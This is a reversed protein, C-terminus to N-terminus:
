FIRFVGSTEEAEKESTQEPIRSFAKTGELWPVFAPSAAGLEGRRAKLHM